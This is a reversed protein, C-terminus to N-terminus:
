SRLKKLELPLGETQGSLTRLRLDVLDSWSLGRLQETVDEPKDDSKQLLSESAGLAGKSMMKPAALGTEQRFGAKRLGETVGKQIAVDKSKEMSALKKELETNSKQLKEMTLRIKVLEDEERGDERLEKEGAHEEMPYEEADEDVEEDKPPFQKEMAEISQQAGHETKNDLTNSSNEEHEDKKNSSMPWKTGSAKKSEDGGLDQSQKELKSLRPSLEDMVAKSVGKVLATFEAKELEEEKERREKETEAEQKVMFKSMVENSKQLQEAIASLALTVGQDNDM